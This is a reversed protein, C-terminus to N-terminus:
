TQRGGRIAAYIFYTKNLVSYIFESTGSMSSNCVYVGETGYYIVWCTTLYVRMVRLLKYIVLTHIIISM